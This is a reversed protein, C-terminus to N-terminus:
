HERNATRRERHSPGFPASRALSAERQCMRRAPYKPPLLRQGRPWGIRGRASGEHTKIEWRACGECRPQSVVRHLRGPWGLNAMEHSVLRPSAPRSMELGNPPHRGELRAGRQGLYDKMNDDSRAFALCSSVSVYASYRAYRSGRVGQCAFAKAASM